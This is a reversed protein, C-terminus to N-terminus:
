KIEVIPAEKIFHLIATRTMNFEKKIEAYSPRRQHTSFEMVIAFAGNNYYWDVETGYIPHGYMQCARQMRYGSLKTMEGVIRQYDRENPCLKNQEGWPTLFIRGFTHGSIVANPKIEKFLDQIAQVAPTSRRNPNRLGPFDRNPDVGDVHRSHPYSDPSVVPVFYVDRSDVLDTVANDRGYDHLMTGIFAMVTSASHPENGHICATILVKPKNVGSNVRIYYLDKGKSSKGYTGVEAIDPAERGWEKLQDIVEPYDQYDPIKTTIAYSQPILDEVAIPTGERVVPAQAVKKDGESKYNSFAGMGLMVAVLVMGLRRMEVEM